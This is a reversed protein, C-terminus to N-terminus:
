IQKNANCDEMVGPGAVGIFLFRCNHDCAAQINLGYTQYHGSFFSKINNVESKSPPRIQLHYGDIVAVCNRICDQSSISTFGKAARILEDNTTPIDISLKSCRNIVDIDRWVVCYFSSTSTGIFYKIFSYSGWACYRLCSYLCLKNLIAGGRSRARIDDVLLDRRIFLLLKDFSAKSM